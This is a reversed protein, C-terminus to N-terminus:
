ILDALTPQLAFEVCFKAGIECPEFRWKGGVAEIDQLGIGPIVTDLAGRGNDHVTVRLTSRVDVVRLALEVHKAHGHRSANTIAESCAAIIKQALFGDQDLVSIVDQPLELDVHMLGQWNTVLVNLEAAVDTEVPQALPEALAEIDHTIQEVMEAIQTIENQSLVALHDQSTETLIHLKMRVAALRGQIPGHLLRSLDRRAFQRAVEIKKLNQTLQSKTIIQEQSARTYEDLFYKDIAGLVISLALLGGSALPLFKQGTIDQIAPLADIGFIRLTMALACALFVWTVEPMKSLRGLRSRLVQLAFLPAFVGLVQLLWLLVVKIGVVPLLLTTGVGAAIRLSRASDLPLDRFSLKPAPTNIQNQIPPNYTEGDTNLEAILQRLTQISYGDIQELIRGLHGEKTQMGVARIEASILQLEPRIKESVTEILKAREIQLAQQTTEEIQILSENTRRLEQFTTVFQHRSEFVHTTSLLSSFWMIPVFLLRTMLSLQEGGAIVHVFQSILVSTLGTALWVMFVVAATRSRLFHYRGLAWNGLAFVSTAGVM